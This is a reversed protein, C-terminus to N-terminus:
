LANPVAPQRRRLQMYVYALGVTFILGFGALGIATSKLVRDFTQIQMNVMLRTQDDTEAWMECVRRLGELNTAERVMKVNSHNKMETSPTFLPPHYTLRHFVYGGAVLLMALASLALLGFTIQQIQKM